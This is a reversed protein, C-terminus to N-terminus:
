EKKKDEASSSQNNQSFKLGRPHSRLYSSKLLALDTHTYIQTTSLSAHGLLDKIAVIDAGNQLLHTAFTHRVVHPSAKGEHETYTRIYRNVVWYVFAATVGVNKNDVLIASNTSVELDFSLETEKRYSELLTVVETTLPVLREKKRKGFILMTRERPNFDKWKLAVLESRRLGMTYLMLLLLRDRRGAWDDSFNEPALLQVMEPESLFEPLYKPAKPRPVILIPNTKCLAVRQLYRYFSGLSSLHRNITRAGMESKVASSLWTRVDGVQVASCAELSIEKYGLAEFFSRIDHEYARLTHPSSNKEFKLYDLFRECLDESLSM